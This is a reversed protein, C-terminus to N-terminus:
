IWEQCQDIWEGIKPHTWATRGFPVFVLGLCHIGCALQWGQFFSLGVTRCMLFFWRPKSAKLSQPKSLLWTAQSIMWRFFIFVALWFECALLVQGARCTRPSCTWCFQSYTGSLILFDNWCEPNANFFASHIWMFELSNERMQYSQSALFALDPDCPQCCRSSSSCNCFERHSWHISFACQGPRDLCGDINKNCENMKMTANTVWM